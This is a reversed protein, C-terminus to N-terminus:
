HAFLHWGAYGWAVVLLANAWAPRTIFRLFEDFSPIRGGSRRAAQDVVVWVAVWVLWFAVGADPANPLLLAPVPMTLGALTGGAGSPPTRPPGGHAPAPGSAPSRSVPDAGAAPALGRAVGYAIGVFIWVLLLAANFPRYAQALASVTLHAVRRGTDLGLFEWATAVVVLLLWPLTGVFAPGAGGRGPRPWPVASPWRGGAARPATRHRRGRWWLAVDVAVVVGLTVSWTAVAPTTTRHYGSVWGCWALTAVTGATALWPLPGPRAPWLRTGSPQRPHSANGPM